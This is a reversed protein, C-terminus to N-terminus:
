APSPSPAIGLYQKCLRRGREALQEELQRKMERPNVRVNRTGRPRGRSPKHQVQLDSHFIDSDHHLVSRPSRPPDSFPVAKLSGRLITSCHGPNLLGNVLPVTPYCPQNHSNLCGNCGAQASVSPVMSQETCQGKSGSSGTASPKPAANEPDESIHTVLMRPPLVLEGTLLLEDHKSLNKDNQEPAHPQGESSITLSSTLGYDLAKGTLPHAIKRRKVADGSNDLGCMKSANQNESDEQGQKQGDSAPHQQERKANSKSLSTSYELGPMLDSPLGEPPFNLDPIHLTLRNDSQPAASEAENKGSGLLKSKPKQKKGSELFATVEPRSRCRLGTSIQVYYKDKSGATAGSERFRIETRWGEPLWVPSTVEVTKKNSKPKKKSSAEENGQTLNATSYQMEAHSPTQELETSNRNEMELAPFSSCGPSKKESTESM